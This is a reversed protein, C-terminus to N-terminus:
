PKGCAERAAKEFVGLIERGEDTRWGANQVMWVLVLGNKTDVTMNTSYAGGHGAKGDGTSFGLGYRNKLTSPTQRSTLASVSDATLLRKGDWVGGGLIMRCFNGVDSATSFLGGAPMPTRTPDELPYRLQGVPVPVLTKKDPSAKYSTAIRAQQASDPWFTTDKMGLPRFLREGMFSEYSQGSLIEILRGITNIGANSYRYDSGPQYDLDLRGYAATRAALSLTDLTPEEEPAKFPLGSTHSLLHRITIPRELPMPARDKGDAGKGRVKQGQFEPLYKTVPDDLSVKGEEVLMMFAAATMSKSQSAIWFIADAAMPIKKERDAWGVTEVALVQEQSAALMVAGALLERDVFPQIRDAIAGPKVPQQGCAMLPLSVLLLRPFNWSLVKM